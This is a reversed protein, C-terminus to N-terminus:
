PKVEQVGPAGFIQGGEKKLKEVRAAIRKRWEAPLQEYAVPSKSSDISDDKLSAEVFIDPQAYFRFSLTRRNGVLLRDFKPMFAQAQAPMGEQETMWKMMALEETGMAGFMTAPKSDAGLTMAVFDATDRAAVGGDRPLGNPMLETPEEKYSTSGNMGGFAIAMEWIGGDKSKASKAEDLFRANPGFVIDRVTKQQDTSLSGYTLTGARFLNNRQSVGLQGYFRLVNWDTLGSMGSQAINPALRLYPMIVPTSLIAPNRVAYRTIDELGAVTKTNVSQMLMALDSRYVHLADDANPDSSRFEMWGQDVKLEGIKQLKEKLDEETAPSGTGLVDQVVGDPINAVLNAKATAATQTIAEGWVFSLPDNVEPHILLDRVEKSTTMNGTSIMDMANSAHQFAQSIKSYSISKGKPKAPEDAKPAKGPAAERIINILGGADGVSVGSDQSAIVSGDKAYVKFSVNVTDGGFMSMLGGRSLAVIVKAPAETIPQNRKKEAEIAQRVLENDGIGDPYTPESDDSKHKKLWENRSRIFGNVLNPVSPPLAVQTNNPTTALVLREGSNISAYTRAPILKMIDNMVQQTPEVEEDPKGEKAATTTVAVSGGGGMIMGGFGGGFNGEKLAKEFLKVRKEFAIKSATLRAGKNPALRLIDGTGPVWEGWAAQAIRKLLDDPDANEVNIVFTEDAIAPHVSLKRGTKEAIQAIVESLPRANASYTVPGHNATHSLSLLLLSAFM